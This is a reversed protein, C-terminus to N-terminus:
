STFRRPLVTLAMSVLMVLATPEPVASTEETGYGWNAALISADAPGVVKDGNFDGMEWFTEYNPNLTTYGWNEALRRADAADVDGDIDADGPIRPPSSHVVGGVADFFRGTQPGTATRLIKVFYVDDIQGDFDLWCDM